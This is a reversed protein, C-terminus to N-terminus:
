KIWLKVKHRAGHPQSHYQSQSGTLIPLLPASDYQHSDGHKGLTYKEKWITESQMGCLSDYEM